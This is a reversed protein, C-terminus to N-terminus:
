QYIIQIFYRDILHYILCCIKSYQVGKCDELCNFPPDKIRTIVGNKFADYKPNSNEGGLHNSVVLTKGFAMMAEKDRGDSPITMDEWIPRDPEGLVSVYYGKSKTDAFVYVYEDNLYGGDKAALLFTRKYNFGEALCVVVIRSRASVNGLAQIVEVSTVDKLRITTTIIVDEREAFVDGIDIKMMSCKENDGKNSYIFAFQYWKFSLMISHIAIGLSYSNVSLLATTPFRDMNGFASSTSLGWTFLPINYFAANVGSIIAPFMKIDRRMADSRAKLVDLDESRWPLSAVRFSDKRVVIKNAVDEFSVYTQANSCTPGIIADVKQNTILETTIGVALKEDCEDFRVTFEIEYSPLLQEKVIRDKAILVAGASTRYGVSLEYEPRNKVFMLGVNLIRSSTPCLLTILWYRVATSLMVITPAFCMCCLMNFVEKTASAMKLESM